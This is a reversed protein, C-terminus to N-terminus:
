GAHSICGLRAPGSSTGAAASQVYIGCTSISFGGSTAPLTSSRRSRRSPSTSLWLPPTWRNAASAPWRRWASSREMPSAADLAEDAADREALANWEGAQLHTVVKRTGRRLFREVLATVLHTKGSGAPGHLFLPNASERPAEVLREVAALASRNEPVEVFTAFTLPLPRQM